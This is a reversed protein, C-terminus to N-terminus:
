EYINTCLIVENDLYIVISKLGLVLWVHYQLDELEDLLRDSVTANPCHIIFIHSLDIQLQCCPLSSTFFCLLRDIRAQYLKHLDNTTIETLLM